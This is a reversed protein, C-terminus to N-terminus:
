GADVFSQLQIRVIRNCIGVLDLDQQRIAFEFLDFARDLKGSFRELQRGVGHFGVAGAAQDEGAGAIVSFRDLFVLL